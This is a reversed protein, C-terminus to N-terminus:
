CAPSPDHGARKCSRVVIAAAFRYGGGFKMREADAEGPKEIDIHASGAHSEGAGETVALRRDAVIDGDRHRRM